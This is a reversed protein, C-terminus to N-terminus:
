KQPFRAHVADMMKKVFEDEDIKENKDEEEEEEEGYVDSYFGTVHIPHPGDCRLEVTDLPTFTQQLPYQEFVGPILKGLIITKETEPVEGKEEDLEDIEITKVRCTLVSPESSYNEEFTGLSINALCFYCNNVKPVVCTDSPQLIRSFFVEKTEM